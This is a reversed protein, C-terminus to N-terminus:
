NLPRRRTMVFIGNKGPSLSPTRKRNKNKNASSMCVNNGVKSHVRTVTFKEKSFSHLNSRRLFFIYAGNGQHLHVTALPTGYAIPALATTHLLCIQQDKHHSTGRINKGYKILVSIRKGGLIFWIVYKRKVYVKPASTTSSPLITDVM